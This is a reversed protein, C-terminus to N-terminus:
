QPSAQEWQPVGPDFEHQSRYLSGMAASTKAWVCLNILNGFVKRGAVVIQDIHRWDMCSYILAGPKCAKAVNTFSATLFASFAANSMEGLGQVFEAHKVAGLGSIMNKNVNYPPDCFTADALEGANLIKHAAWDMASGCLLRHRGHKWIDGIRGVVQQRGVVPLLDAPDPEGDATIALGQISLDIEAMTFGTLELGLDIGAVSLDRLAEGLLRSDRSSVEALRNLAIQLVRLEHDSLHSIRVIPVETM